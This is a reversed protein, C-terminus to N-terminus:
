KEEDDRKLNGSNLNAQISVGAVVQGDSFGPVDGTLRYYTFGARLQHYQLNLGIEYGPEGVVNKLNGDVFVEIRSSNAPFLRQLTQGGATGPFVTAMLLARCGSLRRM